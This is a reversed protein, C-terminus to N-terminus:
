GSDDLLVGHLSENVSKWVWGSVIKGKGKTGLEQLRTLEMSRM